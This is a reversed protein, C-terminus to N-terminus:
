PTKREFRTARACRNPSVPTGRQRLRTRRSGRPDPRSLRRPRSVRPRHKGRAHVAHRQRVSLSGSPRATDAPRSRVCTVHSDRGLLVGQAARARRTSHTAARYKQFMATLPALRPVLYPITGGGHSLVFRIHSFRRPVDAGILSVVMRTTDFPFEIMPGPHDVSVADFNPPVVPHTSVVVERRNLEDFIPSFRPDGLYVGNINTYLGIGDMRLVDLAYSIEVLAGDIDPLPLVAFGGFRSPHDLTLRANEENVARALSRASAGVVFSLGPASLLLLSTSIATRDMIGIHAEPNWSPLPFGDVDRIGAHHIADVHVQPVFHAHVDVRYTM